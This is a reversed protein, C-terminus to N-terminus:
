FEEFYDNDIKKIIYEQQREVGMDYEIMYEALKRGDILRIQKNKNNEVSKKAEETFKSTTIIVGKPSTMAFKDMAGSFKDIEPATVANEWQKAQVYIKEFGLKDGEIIGDIGGDGSKSTNKARGYGMRSLLNNVLKEFSYCDISKIKVLLEEVLLNKFEDYAESIRDEPTADANSSIENDDKIAKKPKQFEVFSDYQKLFKVNIEDPKTKKGEDTISYVGKSKSDILGAKKLYTLAWHVRSYLVNVGSSEYVQNIDEDNLNCALICKQLIDQMNHEKSDDLINRIHKFFTNFSPVM